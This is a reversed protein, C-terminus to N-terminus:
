DILKQELYFKIRTYRICLQAIWVGILIWGLAAPYLVMRMRHDLKDYESFGVNGGAGPHLSDGMVDPLVYILPIMIAFAFINYVASIKAAKETDPFSKRLVLYALYSLISLGAGVQKPDNSWPAGWTFNAWTMGTFIGLMGFFVGVGAYNGARQDSSVKGKNLYAVANVFSITYMTMMTFWMPLHYYLNRISERVVGMKPVAGMLGAGFSYIILIVALIKWWHQKMRIAYNSM